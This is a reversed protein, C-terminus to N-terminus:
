EAMADTTEDPAKGAAAFAELAYGITDNAGQVGQGRRMEETIPAFYNLSFDIQAQQGVENIALGRSKALACTMIPLAQHHCSFCEQHTIYNAAGRQVRALGRTVAARAEPAAAARTVTRATAASVLGAALFGIAGAWCRRM